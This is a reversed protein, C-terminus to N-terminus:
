VHYKEEAIKTFNGANTLWEIDARFISRGVTPQARGMLFDSQKVFNFFNEWKGLDTLDENFRQRIQTKRKVTLKMVTPLEPLCQHYLDIIKMYPVAKNKIKLTTKKGDRKNSDTDIDIDTDTDPLTVTVDSDRKEKKKLRYRATREKSSDSTYQRREWNPPTNNENILKAELLVAQTKLWQEHDIRLTHEIVSDDLKVDGHVSRMYLLMVFRRQDIESLMQTRPNTAFEIYFRFWPLTM